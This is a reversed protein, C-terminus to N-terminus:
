LGAALRTRAPWAAAYAREADLWSNPCVQYIKRNALLIAQRDAWEFIDGLAAAVALAGLDGTGARGWSINCATPAPNSSLKSFVSWQRDDRTPGYELNGIYGFSLGLDPHMRRAAETVARLIKIACDTAPQM